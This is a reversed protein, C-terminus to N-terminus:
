WMSYYWVQQVRLDYLMNPTEHAPWCLHAGGLHLILHAKPFYNNFWAMPTESVASIFQFVQKELWHNFRFHARRGPQNDNPMSGRNIHCGHFRLGEQFITNKCLQQTWCVLLFTCSSQINLYGACLYCLSPQKVCLVCRKYKEASSDRCHQLPFRKVRLARFWHERM